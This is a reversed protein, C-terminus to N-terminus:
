RGHHRGRRLTLVQQVDAFRQELMEVRAELDWRMRLSSMRKVLGADKSHQQMLALYPRPM